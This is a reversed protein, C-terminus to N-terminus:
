KTMNEEMYNFLLERYDNCKYMQAPEDEGHPFHVIVMGKVNIGYEKLIIAYLSLQISYENLHNEYFDQFPYKLKHYKGKPHKDTKLEVNTKWDLIFLNGDKDLFLADITGSIKWRKLFIRVEFKVPTLKHLREAYVLNFKNIARVIKLNNGPLKQPVGNFYNEIWLHVATGYVKSEDNKAKWEALIEEQTIGREEAKRKSWYDEDFKDHFRQLFTTVSIFEIGDYTYKHTPEDFHFKPDEFVKLKELIEDVANITTLESM